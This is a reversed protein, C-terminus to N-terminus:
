QRINSITTCIPQLGDVAGFGRRKSRPLSWSRQRVPGIAPVLFASRAWNSPGAVTHNSKTDVETSKWPEGVTSQEILYCRAGPLRNCGLDIEVERDDSNVTLDCPVPLDGVATSAERIGFGLWATKPGVMDWYLLWRKNGAYRPALANFRPVVNAGSLDMRCGELMADCRNSRDGISRAPTSSRQRSTHRPASRPRTHSQRRGTAYM